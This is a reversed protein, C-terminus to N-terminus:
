YSTWQINFTGHHKKTHIDFFWFLRGTPWNDNPDICLDYIGNNLSTVTYSYSLQPNNTQLLTFDAETLGSIPKGTKQSLLVVKTCVPESGNGQGRNFSDSYVTVQILDASAVGVLCVQFMLAFIVINKKM